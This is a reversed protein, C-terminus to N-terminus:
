GGDPRYREIERPRGGGAPEAGLSRLIREIFGGGEGEHRRKPPTEPQPAEAVAAPAGPLPAPPVGELAPVMVRRWLVAPLTGGTVRDMPRADDNGVWVGTVLNGTLGVFWADRFSQSTGTKGGVPRDIRAAKGTGWAVTAGLLDTMAALERRAVVQPPPAPSRRYLLEGGAARIEEIGHPWVARGSNAFVAYAATLELLTVEGSGLAITGDSELPSAIGLRAATRAVTEPGVDLAIRVAVSNLSRAFAERLTVEGYYRDNYNGPRWGRVAIPGDVMRSDPTLGAELGALFVFAKFASGPQRLAQTARNFQSEAYDRGGVMARVAGDPSLSVLAAQEANRTQGQETLVTALEREAIRQMRPDLTTLVRLDRDVDGLFDRVQAMIWDTFYPATQAPIKPPAPRMLRAAEAAEPTLFGAEVMARLVVLAREEARDVANVPNLRSPAKLLGALLAAEFVSVQGAPKGFYTRAAADVGYAGAGLYVRNLYITLIQDKTFRRELWLALLLEQIKREITREPTLFLIKALQQTITSGGQVIRGALLNEVLARALGRFDVGGHEYFRRDEVAIVARPLHPPLEALEVTDGYRDGFSAIQSGDTALLTVNPRRTMREISGIEPLDYAYYAVLGVVAILGWVCLTGGWILARRLWLGRQAGGGRRKRHGTDADSGASLKRPRGGKRTTSGSGAAPRRANRKSM